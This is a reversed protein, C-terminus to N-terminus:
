VAVEVGMRAARERRTLGDALMDFCDGCVPERRAGWLYREEEPAFAAGCVSCQLQRPRARVPSGGRLALAIDPHEPFRLEM